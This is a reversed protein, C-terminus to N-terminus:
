EHDVFTATSNPLSMCVRNTAAALSRAPSPIPAQDVVLICFILSSASQPDLCCCLAPGEDFDRVAPSPERGEDVRDIEWSQAVSIAARQLKWSPAPCARALPMAGQLAPMSSGSAPEKNTEKEAREETECRMLHLAICPDRAHM